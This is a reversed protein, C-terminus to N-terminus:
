IVKAETRLLNALEHAMEAPEGEIMKCLPRPPPPTLKTLMLGPSIDNLTPLEAPTFTTLPKKKAKMINPLSPFRPNVLGKECTILAPLAGEIVEEAGEIRRRAKFISGADDLEFKVVAGAHPLDLFEALAPGLEGSDNDITQKGCLILDFTVDESKAAAAIAEAMAVEDHFPFEEVSVHIARDAGMALATRLSLLANPGGLAIAVIAEVDGRNEKLQAAQEIAYEDFPNCVFKLGKTDIAPRDPAVKVAARSDPVPQAVVLIRM